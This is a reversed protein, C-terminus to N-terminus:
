LCQTPLLPWTMTITVFRLGHLGWTNYVSAGDASNTQAWEYSKAVATQNSMAVLAQSSIKLLYKRINLTLAKNRFLELLTFLLLLICVRRQLKQKACWVAQNNKRALRGWTKVNNYYQKQCKRLKARFFVVDTCKNRNKLCLRIKVPPIPYLLM